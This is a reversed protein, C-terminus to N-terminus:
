KKPKFALLVNGPIEGFQGYGSNVFLTGNGATISNADISGGKGPIGDVTEYTKATQYSWLLKGDKADIVYLTGDLAGAIVTGDIVAPATSFAANRPPRAARGTPASAGAAAPPPEPSYMWKIKGTNADLAYLGAKLAPDIPPGGPLQRGINAIPVYLTDNDYAIGWHIGGLPTGTGIDRRWVVKGTAPDLAWATGSKQGAFLLDKGNKLHGLIPSAGFDVDRFVTDSVCNLQTPKPKPGCAAVFLDRDTAQYSWKEKGDKLGIAILADTNKHVPQSNSEGTGFYILGRKEDVVPSNWIPAGSPGWYMKGDGRDRLPKADPMTDYRWQQAGTKPDLSLVYGHNDCCQIKNEGGVMIEFQSVPVIVRDKLVTPTGTTMSYAYSGVGKTWVAKGTRPDVAHVTSDLGSFVLLPSGDATTGYAVSSRLPAGGPATYIWKFCPKDGAIDIAYMQGTGAVPYFLTTGIIAGASRMEAIDPFGIAWALDMNSLDAKTLGAQKATLARTNHRDFGFHASVVQGTLDVKARDAPCMSAKAWDANPIGAANTLYGVLLGRDEASLNKGMEKMKGNTLSYNVFQFSMAKLADKSPARSVDSHDHCAACNAQYLAEGHASAAAATSVPTAAEPAPAAPAASSSVVPAAPTDPTDAAPKDAQCAALAIASACALIAFARSRRGAANPTRGM